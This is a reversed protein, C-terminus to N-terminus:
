EPVRVYTGDVFDTLMMITNYRVVLNDGRLTATARWPGAVSWSDWDFTILSDAHTYRGTYGFRKIAGEYFELVFTGNEEFVYRSHLSGSNWAYRSGKEDYFHFLHTTAPYLPEAPTVVGSSDIGAPPTPV